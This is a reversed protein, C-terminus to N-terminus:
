RSMPASTTLARPTEGPWRTAHGAALVEVDPAALIKQLRKTIAAEAKPVTVGGVAVRGYCPGLSVGGGPEVLFCKQIPWDLLTGKVWVTLVDLPEIRKSAASPAANAHVKTGSAVARGDGKAPKQQKRAAQKSLDEIEEKVEQKHAKAWASINDYANEYYLWYTGTKNVHDLCLTESPDSKEALYWLLPNTAIKHQKAWPLFVHIYFSRTKEAAQSEIRITETVYQVRSVEGSRARRALRDFDKASAVNYLEFVATFWLEEFSRKGVEQGNGHEERVRIWGPEEDTPRQNDGGFHVSPTAANWFVAEGLDEGAFKRTAWQYLPEALKGHEAMAKRDSLMNRLQRQGHRMVDASLPTKPWAEFKAAQDKPNLQIATQLDRIGLDYDGRAVLLTGRTEYLCPSEPSLSIATTYDYIALDCDGNKRYAWGRSAYKDGDKPDLRIAERYDAIAKKYDGQAHRVRGRGFYADGREPKIRIVETYDDIARNYDGKEQYDWGREYYAADYRDNLRIAHSCDAIARDLDGVRRYAMGRACLAEANDHDIRLTETYDSVAKAYDGKSFRAAGRYYFGLWLNPNLRVAGECDALAHDFDNKQYYAAGRGSFASANKPELRIAESYDDIAKNHGDKWYWADGRCRYAEAYKPDLRIAETYDAVAADYNSKVSDANGLAYYDCAHPKNKIAKRFVVIGKELPLVDEKAVWGTVGLWRTRFGSAGAEEVTLAAGRPVAGVVRSEMKLKAESAAVVIVTDGVQQASLPSGVCLVVLCILGQKM